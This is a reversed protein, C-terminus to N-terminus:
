LGLGAAINADWAMARWPGSPRTPLLFQTSMSTIERNIVILVIHVQRETVLFM